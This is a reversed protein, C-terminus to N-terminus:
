WRGYRRWGYGGYYRPAPAVYVPVPTVYVPAPAVYVPAPAVYAPAPAYAHRAPVVICGGLTLAASALLLGAAIRRRPPTADTSGDAVNRGTREM